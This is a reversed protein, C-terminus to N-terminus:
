SGRPASGNAKPAATAPALLRRTNELCVDMYGRWLLRTIGSLPLAAVANHAAFTYTWTIRTGGAVPEFRWEGRAERALGRVIPNGFDWVRYAFDDPAGHRTVQERATTGDALHVVRASGPVDWPGTHGSTRVVAPLPGYGTLVKPLVDEAAVFAFVQEPPAPVVATRTIAVEYVTTPGGATAPHDTARISACGGALATVALTAAIAFAPRRCLPPAPRSPSHPM